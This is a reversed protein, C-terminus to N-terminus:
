EIRETSDYTPVGSDRTGVGTETEATLWLRYTGRGGSGASLVPRRGLQCHGDWRRAGVAMYCTVSPAM